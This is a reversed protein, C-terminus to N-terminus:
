SSIWGLARVEMCFVERERERGRMGEGFTALGRMGLVRREREGGVM